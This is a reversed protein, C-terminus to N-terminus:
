VTLRIFDQGSGPLTTTLNTTEVKIVKIWNKQKYLKWDWWGKRRNIKCALLMWNCLFHLLQRPNAILVFPVRPNQSGTCICFTCIIMVQAYRPAIWLTTSIKPCGTHSASMSAITFNEQVLDVDRSRQRESRISQLGTASNAEWISHSAMLPVKKYLLFREGGYQQTMM